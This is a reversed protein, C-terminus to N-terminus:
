AMLMGFFLPCIPVRPFSDILVFASSRTEKRFVALQGSCRVVSLISSFNRCFFGPFLNSLFLLCFFLFM